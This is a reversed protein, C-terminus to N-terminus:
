LVRLNCAPRSAPCAAPGNCSKCQTGGNVRSEYFCSCQFSPTFAKLPGMEEDRSVHMACVPVAGGAITAEILAENPVTFSIVFQTAQNSLGGNVLTTYLHIPGWVAYHGDQVNQKDSSRPSSDPL